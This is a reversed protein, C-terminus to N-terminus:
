RIWRSAVWGVSNTFGELVGRLGEWDVLGALQELVESKPPAALFSTFLDPSSTCSKRAM